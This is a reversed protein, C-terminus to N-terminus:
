RVKKILSWASYQFLISMTSLRLKTGNVITYVITKGNVAEMTNTDTRRMKDETPGKNHLTCPILLNETNTPIFM